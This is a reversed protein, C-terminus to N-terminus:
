ASLLGVLLLGQALHYTVIVGLRLGADGRSRGETAGAAVFQGWGLMADSAVFLWAGAVLAPVLTATATMAMACIAVLYVAVAVHLGSPRAAQVIGRGVFAIVAFGVVAGSAAGWGSLPLALFAVLYALHGLLFAVLGAPLRGPPLLLVDGVLGLVLGAVLWPQVATTRAPVVLAIAILALLTAPKAVREIARARQTERWVAWWDVAAAGGAVALLGWGLPTM